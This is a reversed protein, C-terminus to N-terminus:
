AHAGDESSSPRVFGAAHLRQFDTSMAIRLLEAPLGLQEGVAETASRWSRGGSLLACIAVTPGGARVISRSGITLYSAQETQILRADPHLEWDGRDLARLLEAPAALEATLQAIRDALGSRDTTVAFVEGAFAEADVGFRRVAKEVTWKSSPYGEGQEALAKSAQWLQANRLHIAAARYHGSTLHAQSSALREVARRTCWRSFAACAVDKDFRDLVPAMSPQRVVHIGISIRYYRDFDKYQLEALNTWDITAIRDALADLSDLTMYECDVYRQERMGISTSQSRRHAPRSSIVYLDIDSSKNGLGEVLSGTALCSIPGDAAKLLQTVEDLVQPWLTRLLPPYRPPLSVAIDNM